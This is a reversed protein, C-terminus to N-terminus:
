LDRLSLMVEKNPDWFVQIFNQVQNNEIIVGESVLLKEMASANKFHQKGTLLGQKNVVRHAPYSPQYKLQNLAWGVMRASQKSGIYQVIAGYTTVRGLPILAVVEYVEKFFSKSSEPSMTKDITSISILISLLPKSTM